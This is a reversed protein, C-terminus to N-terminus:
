AQGVGAGSCDPLGGARPLRASGAGARFSPLLPNAQHDRVKLMEIDFILPQAKQQLTDLDAHGLSNHEQMQTIGELLDKSAAINLLSKAM